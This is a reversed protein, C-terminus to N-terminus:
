RSGAVRERDQGPGAVLLVERTRGGLRTTGKWVQCGPGAESEVDGVMREDTAQIVTAVIRVLARAEGVDPAGAQVFVAQEGLEFGGSAESLHGVLADRFVRRKEHELETRRPLSFGCIESNM